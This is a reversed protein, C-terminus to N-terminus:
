APETGRTPWPTRAKSPSLRKTSVPHSKAHGDQVVMALGEDKGAGVIEVVGRRVKGMAYWEVRDGVRLTLATM